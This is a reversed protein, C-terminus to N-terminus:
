LDIYEIPVDDPRQNGPIMEDPPAPGSAKLKRDERCAPMAGPSRASKMYIYYLIIYYLIIYYIYLIPIYIGIYIYM